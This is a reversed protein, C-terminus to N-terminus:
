PKATKRPNKGEGEDSNYNETKENKYTKPTTVKKYIISSYGRKSRTDAGRGEKIKKLKIKKEKRNWM